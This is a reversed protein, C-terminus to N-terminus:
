NYKESNNNNGTIACQMKSLIPPALGFAGLVKTNEAITKSLQNILPKNQKEEVLAQLLTKPVFEMEEIM